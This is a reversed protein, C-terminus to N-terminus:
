PRGLHQYIMSVENPLFTRRRLKVLHALVPDDSLLPKLKQWASRPQIYPFYLQALEMRGMTTSTQM